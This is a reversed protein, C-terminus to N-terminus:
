PKERDEFHLSIASKLDAQTQLPSGAPPGGFQSPLPREHEHSDPNKETTSLLQTSLPALGPCLTRVFDGPWAQQWTLEGDTMPNQPQGRLPPPSPPTVDCSPSQTQPEPGPHMRSHPRPAPCPHPNGPRVAHEQPSTAPAPSPQGSQPGAKGWSMPSQPNGPLRLGTVEASHPRPGTM